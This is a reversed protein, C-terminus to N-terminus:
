GSVVPRPDSRGSIELETVRADDPGVHAVVRAVADTVSGGEEIRVRLQEGIEFLYPSRVRVIAGDTEVVEFVEYLKDDDLVQVRRSRQAADNPAAWSSM